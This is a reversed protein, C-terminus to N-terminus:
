RRVARFRKVECAVKLNYLPRACWVARGCCTKMSALIRQMQPPVSKGCARSLKVTTGRRPPSRRSSRGNSRIIAPPTRIAGIAAGDSVSTTFRFSPVSSTSLTILVAGVDEYIGALDSAAPIRGAFVRLGRGGCRKQFVKEGLRFHIERKREEERRFGGRLGNIRRRLVTAYGKLSGHGWEQPCEEPNGM